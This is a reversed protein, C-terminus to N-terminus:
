LLCFALLYTSLPLYTDRDEGGAVRCGNVMADV